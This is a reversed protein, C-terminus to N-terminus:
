YRCNGLRFNEIKMKVKTLYVYCFYNKSKIKLQCVANANTQYLIYIQHIYVINLSWILTMVLFNLMLMLM